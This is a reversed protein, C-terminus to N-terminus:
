AAEMFKGIIDFLDNKGTGKELVAVKMDGLINKESEKLYQANGTYLIVNPLGSMQGQKGVVEMIVDFGNKPKMNYDIVFVSNKDFAKYEQLFATPDQFEIIKAEPFLDEMEVTMGLITYPEDDLLVINSMRKKGKNQLTNQNRKYPNGTQLGKEVANKKNHIPRPRGKEKNFFVERSGIYM